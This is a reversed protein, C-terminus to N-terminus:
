VHTIIQSVPPSRGQLSLAFNFLAINTYQFASIDSPIFTLAHHTATDHCIAFYPVYTQKTECGLSAGSKVAHNIVARPKPKTNHSKDLFSFRMGQFILFFVVVVSTATILIRNRTM